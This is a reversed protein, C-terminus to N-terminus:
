ELSREGIVRENLRKWFSTIEVLRYDKVKFLRIKLVNVLVGKYQGSIWRLHQAGSPTNFSYFFL